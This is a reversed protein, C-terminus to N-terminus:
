LLSLLSPAARAIMYIGVACLAIFFALRFRDENLHHRM